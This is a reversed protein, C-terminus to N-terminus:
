ERDETMFIYNCKAFKDLFARQQELAYPVEVTKEMGTWLSFWGAPTLILGVMESWLEGPKWLTILLQALLLAFGIGMYRMGKHRHAKIQAKVKQREQGFHEKLRKRIVGELKPERAYAPIYFRVEPGGKPNERYRRGLEKLLDDSLERRAHPRPDFDSFIDDYTDLRVVLEGMALGESLGIHAMGEGGSAALNPMPLNPNQSGAEGTWVAMKKAAPEQKHVAPTGARAPANENQIAPASEKIGGHEAEKKASMPNAAKKPAPWGKMEPGAMKPEGNGNKEKDAM